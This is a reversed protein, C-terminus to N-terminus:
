RRTVPRVAGSEVIDGSRIRARTHLSAVPITVDTLAFTEHTTFVTPVTM